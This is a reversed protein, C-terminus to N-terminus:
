CPARLQHLLRSGSLFGGLDQTQIGSSGVILPVTLVPLALMPTVEVGNQM